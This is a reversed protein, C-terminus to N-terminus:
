IGKCCFRPPLDHRRINYICGVKLPFPLIYTEHETADESGMVGYLNADNRINPMMEM